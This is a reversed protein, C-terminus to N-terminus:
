SKLALIHAMQSSSVSCCITTKSGSSINRKAGEEWVGHRAQRRPEGLIDSPPSGNVECGTISATRQTPIDQGQCAGPQHHCCRSISSCVTREWLSQTTITPEITFKGVTGGAVQVVRTYRNLEDGDKYTTYNVRVYTTGSGTPTFRLQLAMQRGDLLDGNRVSKSVVEGSAKETYFVEMKEVDHSEVLPKKGNGNGGDGFFQYLLFGVGGAVVVNRLSKQQKKTMGKFPSYAM